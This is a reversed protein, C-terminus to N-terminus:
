RPPWKKESTKDSYNELYPLELLESKFNKFTYIDAQITEGNEMLIFHETCRTYHTPHKEFRDLYDLMQDDM